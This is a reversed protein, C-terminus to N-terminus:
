TFVVLTQWPQGLEQSQNRFFRCPFILSLSISFIYKAFVQFQVEAIGLDRSVVVYKIKPKMADRFDQFINMHEFLAMTQSLPFM